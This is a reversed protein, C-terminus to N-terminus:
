NQEYTDVCGRVRIEDELADAIRDLEYILAAKFFTDKDEGLCLNRDIWEQTKEDRNMTIERRYDDSVTAYSGQIPEM